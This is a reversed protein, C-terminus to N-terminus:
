VAVSRSTAGLSEEVAVAREFLSVARSTAGLSEEVGAWGLYSAAPKASAAREFYKRAIEVDGQNAELIAWSQWLIDLRARGSGGAQWVGEQLLERARAIDGAEAEMLAWALSSGRPRAGRKFAASRVGGDDPRLKIAKVFLKSGSSM